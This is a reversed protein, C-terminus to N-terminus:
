RQKIKGIHIVILFVSAFAFIGLAIYQHLSFLPLYSVLERDGRFFDVVFREISVLILYICLLQGAKTIRHQVIFYLVLFILFLLGASYLQTPHLGICAPGIADSAQYVIAWPLVTPLGYCCGAFFCGLRAIAQLLPAFLALLDFFPLIRINHSRLYLPLVLVIALISGLLSFGGQWLAFIELFFGISKWETIVYLLRGGLVGIVISICIINIFQNENVLKKRWPHRSALWVFVILGIAILLGFSHISFPGYIHILERSM